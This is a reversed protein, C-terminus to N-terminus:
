PRSYLAQLPHPRGEAARAAGVEPGGSRGGRDKFTRAGMGCAVSGGQDVIEAGVELGAEGAAVGDLALGFPYHKRLDSKRTFPLHRLDALSRIDDPSTIGAARLRDGLPPVNGLRTQLAAQPPASPM